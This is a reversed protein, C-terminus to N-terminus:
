TNILQTFTKHAQAPNESKLIASGVCISDIGLSSVEKINSLKIGGDIGIPKGPFSKKFEKIKTLVEPIFKSGYFGPIVSMFLVTDVSNVLFSFDEIQTEPNVALGVELGISRIRSIIKQRDNKIEFHFIIRKSGFKHFVDLWDLPDEVMLHAETFSLSSLDQLDQKLISQSPVFKGDMIDIQIQEAFGEATKLLRLFEEKKDTLIAPVVRMMM